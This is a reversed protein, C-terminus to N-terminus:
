TVEIVQNLQPLALKITSEVGNKFTQKKISCDKCAGLFKVKVIYDSSVDVLQIDGGDERLYPRIEDLAKDIKEFIDKM